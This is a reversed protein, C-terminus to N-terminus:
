EGVAEAYQANLWAVVDSKRYVVKRQGLKFSKPGVGKHRWWRLTAEKVAGGTMEEVDRGTLLVEVEPSHNISM